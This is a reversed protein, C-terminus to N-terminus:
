AKMRPARRSAAVWGGTELDYVLTRPHRAQRARRWRLVVGLLMLGVALGAVAWALADGAGSGCWRVAVAAAVLGSVVAWVVAM